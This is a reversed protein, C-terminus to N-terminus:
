KRIRDLFEHRGVRFDPDNQLRERTYNAFSSFFEHIVEVPASNPTPSVGTNNFATGLSRLFFQQLNPISEPSAFVDSDLYSRSFPRQQPVNLSLDREITSQWTALLAAVPTQPSEKAEEQTRTALVWQKYVELARSVYGSIITGMIGGIMGTFEPPMIRNMATQMQVQIMNLVTPLGGQIHSGMDEAYNGIMLELTNRFENVFNPGDYDMVLNVLSILWHQGISNIANQPNFGQALMPIFEEPVAYQRQMYNILIHVIRLRGEPSDEEMLKLLSERVAPRQREIPDWNGTALIMIESINLNYFFDMMPLSEEEDHMQLTNILERLTMGQNGGLMQTLMPVMGVLGAPSNGPGGPMVLGPGMQLNLGGPMGQGPGMLGGLLNMLGAPGASLPNPVPQGSPNLPNLNHSRLAPNNINPDSVPPNSPNLNVPPSQQPPNSPPPINPPPPSLNSAQSEQRVESSVPYNGIRMQFQGPQPGIQIQQLIQMAPGTSLTLEQMALGVRQGLIQLLQRENPDQILSERQMLDALRSIFPLLRMLQFQYNHLYGGLLVLPNRPVPLQPMRPPPFSAGPGHLENVINGINLVRDFPLTIEVQRPGPQQSPPPQNPPNSPRNQPNPQGLNGSFLQSMPNPIQPPPGAQAPRSGLGGIFQNSSILQAGPLIGSLVSSIVQDLQFPMGSPAPQPPPNSSQPPNSPPGDAKVMLHVTQGDDKIYESLLHEDKLLKGQCILRQRDIPVNFSELIKVKFDGVTIQQSVTLSKVEGSITKVNVQRDSSEM